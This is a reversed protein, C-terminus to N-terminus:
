CRSSTAASGPRSTPARSRPACGAPSPSAAAPRRDPHGLTDNIEKFRDLDLLLAAARHCPAPRELLSRRNGLGTLDDTLAMAQYRLSLHEVLPGVPAVGVTGDDFTVVLPIAKLPDPREM